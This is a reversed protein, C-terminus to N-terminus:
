GRHTGSNLTRLYLVTKKSSPSEAWYNQQLPPHGEQKVTLCLMNLSHEMVLSANNHIKHEQLDFSMWAINAIQQVLILRVWM